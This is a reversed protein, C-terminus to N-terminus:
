ISSSIFWIAVQAASFLKTSLLNFVFSIINVLFLFTTIGGDTSPRSLTPLKFFSPTIKCFLRDIFSWTVSTMDVHMLMTYAKFISLAMTEFLITQLLDEIGFNEGFNQIGRRGPKTKCSLFFVRPNGEESSGLSKSIIRVITFHKLLEARIGIFFQKFFNFRIVTM